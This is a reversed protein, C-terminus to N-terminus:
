PIVPTVPENIWPTVTATVAIDQTAPAEPTSTLNEGGIAVSAISYVKGKVLGTLNSGAVQIDKVTVYMTAPFTYGAATAGTIKLVIHPVSNQVTADITTGKGAVVPMVYYSWRGTPTAPTSPTVTSGPYDCYRSPYTGTWETAAAGYNLINAAATPVTTYDTGCMTYTNNIYIGALKFGTLPIGVGTGTKAEVKAIEIRAIAPTLTVPVSTAGPSYSASGHVNVATKPHTQKGQEFMLANLKSLPDNVVVGALGSPSTLATANGIIIVQNASGPVGTFTKASGIEGTTMAGKYKITIGDTFFVDAGTVDPTLGVATAEDLYTSPTSITVKIDKPSDDVSGTSEDNSCSGFGLVLAAAM